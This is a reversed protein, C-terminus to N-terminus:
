SVRFLQNIEYSEATLSAVKNLGAFATMFPLPDNENTMYKIMDFFLIQDIVESKGLNFADDILEARNIPHIVTHKKIFQNSLLRWNEMDYNVRYFGAHKINALIWNTEGLYPSLQINVKIYYFIIKFLFYPWKQMNKYNLTNCEKDEPKFWTVANELEFNLERDSTYTIPIYWKYKSLEEKGIKNLPNLLFWKQSLSMSKSSYNRYINVVPYGKKLTWTDM